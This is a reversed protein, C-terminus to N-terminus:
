TYPPQKIGAVATRSPLERLIRRDLLYYIGFMGFMLWGRWWSETALFLTATGTLFVGAAAWSTLWGRRSAYQSRTSRVLSELAILEVM